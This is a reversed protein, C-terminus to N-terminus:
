FEGMEDEDHHHHPDEDEDEKPVASVLTDSTLLLIAVSAANELAVRVVKTADVIGEKVMDCFEDRTLDYGMRPNKELRLIRTVTAPEVGSNVCLQRVPAALAAQVIRVGADEESSSLEFGELSLSARFLAVGGGPVIGEAIAARTASLASEFRSKKEKMETETAAGVRIVAVGGVLKALREQLKERDYESETDELEKRIEKERAEIDRKKGGGEIITTTESSIRVKKATGLDALSLSEPEIGLDKFIPKAGTVVAIDQLMAKRRDGYAPAKVAACKLVGKLKNVVLTALVEGEVDEAIILLGRKTPLVKELVPLIKTLTTIKEEMILIFPNQLECVMKDQQTVFHPSLYGRDFEMGEVVDVVTDIGKGEEITIVGDKGVKEIAESLTSGLVRDNNSAITAIALIQDQSKVPTSLGKVHELAKEVAKRVGRALLMPNTGAYVRKVGHLFLSEALVTSTTSGDGAQDSTKEAASRVLKAAMNQYPNSLDIEEAVSAGDKTVLPEGWGRDVVASRGTPGLTTKVARALKVVGERVAARAEDGFALQKPNKPM